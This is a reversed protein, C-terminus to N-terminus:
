LGGSWVVFILLLHKCINLICQCLLFLLHLSELALSKQFASGKCGAIYDLIHTCRHTSLFLDWHQRSYRLQFIYLNCWDPPIVILFLSDRVWTRFNFSISLLTWRTFFLALKVCRLGGFIQCTKRNKFQRNFFTCRIELRVSSGPMVDLEGKTQKLQHTTKLM